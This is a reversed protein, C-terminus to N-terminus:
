QQQLYIGHQIIQPPLQSAFDALNQALIEKQAPDVAFFSVINGGLIVSNQVEWGGVRQWEPPLGGYPDYWKEYVVAIKVDKVRAIDRMTSTTYGNLLKARASEMSGLGALDVLQTDTFYSIAGIDNIAVSDMSYYQKLFRAMQYQQQYINTSARPTKQLSDFIRYAFSLVFSLAIIGYLVHMFASTKTYLRMLGKSSDAQITLAIATLGVILLYADYRFLWGVRAFIIQLLSMVIFIANLYTTEDRMSRPLRRYLVISSAFLLTILHPAYVVNVLIFGLAFPLGGGISLTSTNAKILVSNPIFYWGHALSWLGYLTVPLVGALGILFAPKWRKNLLLFLCVIAAAFLGEYRAITLFFSLTILAAYQKVAPDSSALARASLYVFWLTLLGHLTHEMSIFTITPLPAALVVLSLLLFRLVPRQVHPKLIFDVSLVILTGFLINLILPAIENVGFVAYVVVLLATWLPSSTSSSFGYETIGWVGHLAVNKAIAMHIYTDDLPYIFHGDNRNVSVVIFVALTLWYLTLAAFLPWRVNSRNKGM